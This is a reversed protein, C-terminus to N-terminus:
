TAGRPFYLVKRCVEWIYQILIPKRICLIFLQCWLSMSSSIQIYTHLRFISCRHRLCYFTGPAASFIYNQTNHQITDRFYTLCIYTYYLYILAVSTNMFFLGHVTYIEQLMMWIWFNLSERVKDGATQGWDRGRGKWTAARNTWWRWRDAPCCSHCQKRKVGPPSFCAAGKVGRSVCNRSWAASMPHTREGPTVSELVTIVESISSCCRFGSVGAWM